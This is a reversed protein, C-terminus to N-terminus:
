QTYLDLSYHAYNVVTESWETKPIEKLILRKWRYEAYECIGRASGLLSGPALM